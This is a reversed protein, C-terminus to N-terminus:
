GPMMRARPLTLLCTFLESMAGVMAFSTLNGNEAWSPCEMSSAILSLWGFGFSTTTSTHSAPPRYTSFRWEPDHGCRFPSMGFPVQYSFAATPDFGEFVAGTWTVMPVPAKGRVCPTTSLMMRNASPCRPSGHDLPGPTMLTGVSASWYAFAFPELATVAINPVSGQCRPM